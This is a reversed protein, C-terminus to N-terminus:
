KEKNLVSKLRESFNISSHTEVDNTVIPKDLVHLTQVRGPAVGLVLQQEGVQVLVVKERAGMSLSSVVKLLSNSRLNGGGMRKMFWALLFIVAVVFVLSMVVNLVSEGGVVPQKIHTEVPKSAKGLGEAYLVPTYLLTLFSCFVSRKLNGGRNKGKHGVGIQM